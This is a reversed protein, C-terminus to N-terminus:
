RGDHKPGSTMKHRIVQIMPQLITQAPELRLSWELMESAAALNGQNLFIDAARNLVDINLIGAKDMLDFLPKAKDAQAEALLAEVLNWVMEPHGPALQRARELYEVAMDSRDLCHLLVAADNLAEADEPSEDLHQEIVDLADQYRGAEALEVARGHRGAPTAISM